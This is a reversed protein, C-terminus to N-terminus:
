DSLLDGGTVVQAGRLEDRDTPLYASGSIVLARTIALGPASVAGAFMAPAAKGIALVAAERPAGGLTRAVLRRGDVAALASGYVERLFSRPDTM